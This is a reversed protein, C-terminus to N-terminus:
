SMQWCTSVHSPVAFCVRASIFEMYLSLPLSAWILSQMGLSSAGWEAWCWWPASGFVVAVSHPLMSVGGVGSPGRWGSGRCRGAARSWWCREEWVTQKEHKSRHDGKGCMLSVCFRCCIVERPRWQVTEKKKISMDMLTYTSITIIKKKKM